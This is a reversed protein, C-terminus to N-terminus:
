ADTESVDPFALTHLFPYPLPLESVPLKAGSSRWDKLRPLTQGSVEEWTSKSMKQRLAPM